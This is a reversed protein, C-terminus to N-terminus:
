RMPPQPAAQRSGSQLGRAVRDGDPTEFAFTASARGEGALPADNNAPEIVIRPSLGARRASDYLGRAREFVDEPARDHGPVVITLRERPDVSRQALWDGLSPVGPGQRYIDSAPADNMAVGTAQPVPGQREPALAAGTGLFLILSLDALVVQWGEPGRTKM